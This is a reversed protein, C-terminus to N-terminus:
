WARSMGTSPRCVPGTLTCEEEFLGVRVRRCRDGQSDQTQNIILISNEKEKQEKRAVLANAWNRHGVAVLKPLFAGGAVPCLLIRWWCGTM